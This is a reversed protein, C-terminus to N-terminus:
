RTWEKIVSGDGRLIAVRDIMGYVWCERGSFDRPDDITAGNEFLKCQSLVGNLSKFEGEVLAYASTALQRAQDPPTDIGVWFYSKMSETISNEYRDYRRIDEDKMLYSYEAKPMGLILIGDTEIYTPYVTVSAGYANTGIYNKKVVSRRSITIGPIKTQSMAYGDPSLTFILKGNQYTYYGSVSRYSNENGSHFGLKFRFKKGSINEPLSKSAFEDESGIKFATHASKLIARDKDAPASSSEKAPVAVAVSISLLAAVALWWKARLFM